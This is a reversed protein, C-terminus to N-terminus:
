ASEFTATVYPPLNIQNTRAAGILFLTNAKGPLLVTFTYKATITVSIESYQCGLFKACRRKLWPISFPGSDDRACNWQTIKRLISDPAMAAPGLNDYIATGDYEGEDYGNKTLPIIRRPCGYIQACSLELLAGSLADSQFNALESYKDRLEAWYGSFIGKHWSFYDRAGDAAKYQQYLYPLRPTQRIM